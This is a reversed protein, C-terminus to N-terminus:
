KAAFEESGEVLSITFLKRWLFGSSDDECWLSMQPPFSSRAALSSTQPKGASGGKETSTVGYLTDLYTGLM